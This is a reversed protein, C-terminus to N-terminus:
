PKAGWQKSVANSALRDARENGTIGSHGRIWNLRVPHSSLAADLLKWLDANPIDAAGKRWGRAKWKKRWENCGNVAYTSDSHVNAGLLDPRAILWRLAALIGGLEMRNNTTRTHAGTESYVEHGDVYVVFSWGGPGPNPDCAGDTFVHIGNAFQKNLSSQRRVQLPPTRPNEANERELAWQVKGSPVSNRSKAHDSKRSEFLPSEPKTETQNQDRDGEGTQDGTETEQRKYISLTEISDRYPIM